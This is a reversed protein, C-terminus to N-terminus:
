KYKQGLETLEKLLADFEDKSLDNTLKRVREVVQKIVETKKHRKRKKGAAEWAKIVAVAQEKTEIKDNGSAAQEILKQIIKRNAESKNYAINLRYLSNITVGEPKQLLLSKGQETFLAEIIDYVGVAEFISTQKVKIRQEIEALKENISGEPYQTRVYRGNGYTKQLPLRERRTGQKWYIYDKVAQRNQFSLVKYNSLAELMGEEEAIKVRTHGDILVYKTVPEGRGPAIMFGWVEIPEKFRGDRILDARLADRTFPSNEDMIGALDSHIEIEVMASLKITKIEGFTPKYDTDNNLLQMGQGRDRNAGVKLPTTM